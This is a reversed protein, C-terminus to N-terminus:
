LLFHNKFFEPRPVQFVLPILRPYKGRAEKAANDGTFIEGNSIVICQGGYTDVIMEFNKGVFEDADISKKM